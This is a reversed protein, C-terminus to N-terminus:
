TTEPRLRRTTYQVTAAQQAICAEGNEAGSLAISRLARRGGRDTEVSPYLDRIRRTRCTHNYSTPQFRVAGTLVYTGLVARLVTVDLYLLTPQLQRHYPLRVTIRMIVLTITFFLILCWLKCFLVFPLSFPNSVGFICM